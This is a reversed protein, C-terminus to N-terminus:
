AKGAMKRLTGDRMVFHHVLAMAVHGVILALLTWGLLGHVANAPAMMWEIKEGTQEFVRIGWPAFGRGSGYARLLALSPILIMLLYLAGHGWRALTGLASPEYAPRSNRNAFAWVLRLVALLLLLFGIPTHTRVLASDAPSLDLTVKYIMISLQWILLAAMSWHLVRSIRGYRQSDDQWSSTVIREKSIVM